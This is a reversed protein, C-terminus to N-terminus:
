TIIFSSVRPHYIYLLIMYMAGCIETCVMVANTCELHVRMWTHSFIIKHSLVEEELTCYRAVLDDPWKKGSLMGLITEISLLQPDNEDIGEPTAPTCWDCSDDGSSVDEKDNGM